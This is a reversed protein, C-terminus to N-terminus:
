IEDEYINYKHLLEFDKEDPTIDAIDQLNNTIWINDKIKCMLDWGLRNIDSNKNNYKLSNKIMGFFFKITAKQKDIESIITGDSQIIKWLGFCYKEYDYIKNKKLLEKLQENLTKCCLAFSNESIDKDFTSLPNKYLIEARDEWDAFINLSNENFNAAGLLYFNSPYVLKLSDGSIRNTIPVFPIGQCHDDIFKNWNSIFDDTNKFTKNFINHSSVVAPIDRKQQAKFLPTYESLLSSIDQNHFDDLFVIHPVKPNVIASMLVQLFEGFKIEKKIPDITIALDTNQLGKYENGIGGSVPIKKYNFFKEAVEPFLISKEFKYSKGTNPQGIVFKINSSIDKPTILPENLEMKELFSIFKNHNKEENEIVDIEELPINLFDVYMNITQLIEGAYSGGRDWEHYEGGSSLKQKITEINEKTLQFIPIPNSSDIKEPLKSDLYHIRKKIKKSALTLTNIYKAFRLRANDEIDEGIIFGIEKSNMEVIRNSAKTKYLLLYPLDIEKENFMNDEILENNVFLYKEILVFNESHKYCYIYDNDKIEEHGSYRSITTLPINENRSLWCSM